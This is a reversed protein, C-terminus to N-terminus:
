GHDVEQLLALAARYAADRQARQQSSDAGAMPGLAEACERVVALVRHLDMAAAPQEFLPILECDFDEAHALAERQSYFTCTEVYAKNRPVLKWASPRQIAPSGATRRPSQADDTADGYAGNAAADLGLHGVADPYAAVEAQGATMRRASGNQEFM